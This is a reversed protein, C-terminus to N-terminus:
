KRRCVRVHPAAQRIRPYANLGIAPSPIFFARTATRIEPRPELMVASIARRLFRTRDRRSRGTQGIPAIGRAQRMRPRRSDCVAVTSMGCIAPFAFRELPAM